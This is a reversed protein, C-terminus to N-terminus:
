ISGSFLIFIQDDHFQDQSLILEGQCFFVPRMINLLQDIQRDECKRFYPINKVFARRMTMNEDIYSGINDYM